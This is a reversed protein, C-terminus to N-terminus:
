GTIGKSLPCIVMQGIFMHVLAVGSQSDPRFAQMDESVCSAPESSMYRYGKEM